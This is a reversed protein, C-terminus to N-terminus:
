STALEESEGINIREPTVVDVDRGCDSALLTLGARRAANAFDSQVAVPLGTLSKASYRHLLKAKMELLRQPRNRLAGTGQSSNRKTGFEVASSSIERRL